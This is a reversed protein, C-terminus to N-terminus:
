GVVRRGGVGTRRGCGIGDGRARRILANLLELEDKLARACRDWVRV